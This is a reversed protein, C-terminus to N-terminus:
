DNAMLSKAHARAADSPTQGDLMQALAELREDTNLQRLATKWGQEGSIKYVFFHQDAKAAIPPQHTIVIIQHHRSLDQLIIGVQRTAEGSIGSDIEDFILTPLAMKQAVISKLVLMLRSLEGGSAVKGIPQWKESQNGDFLFQISDQGHPQLSTKEFLVQLRAQSMGVQKLLSTVQKLLASIPKNRKKTLQEALDICSKELIDRQQTLTEIQNSLDNFQVLSAQLNHQIVLLEATTQVQHKKLLRYGLNLREQLRQLREPDLSLHQDIQELEDAIDKLEVLASQMRAEIEDLPKNPIRIGGLKQLLVKLQLNIAQDHQSLPHYISALQSKVTEAQELFKLETAITELEEPQLNLELFENLLFQLYDQQQIEQKQKELLANLRRSVDSWHRYQEAYQTLLPGTEAIADIIARQFSEDALELTDFQQHLDVLLRSLEKLQTLSVPTDNIFARSKANPLLERRVRIVDDIDLDNSEFFDACSKTAPFDFVGEITCKRTTDVLRSNDARAGLLLDLAGILLSKGAGTEGTLINLGADFHIDVADILAFNRISLCTLM